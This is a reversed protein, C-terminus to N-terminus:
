QFVLTKIVLSWSVIILYHGIMLLWYDFLFWPAHKLKTTPSQFIAIQKPNTEQDNTIQCSTAM